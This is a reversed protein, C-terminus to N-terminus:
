GAQQKRIQQLIEIRTHIGSDAYAELMHAALSRITRAHFLAAVTVEIELLKRLQSTIVLATLSNGGLEAFADEVGVRDIRLARSWLDCLLEEAEGVPAVYNHAPRRARVPPPLAGYDIKGSSSRPLEDVFMYISPILEPPLFQELHTRLSIEDPSERADGLVYACLYEDSADRRHVVAARLVKPHRELLGEVENLELRRGHMKIQRDRRGHFQLEGAENMSVFDGTCYMRAGADASFPDPIFAAASSAPDADYCAAVGCGGIFLQGVSGPAVARLSEDLVYCAVGAVPTGIGHEHESLQKATSWITTETPGYVNWSVPVSDVLWSALPKPLKEGGVLAKIQRSGQWGNRQLMGWITPTAQMVTVNAAALHLALLQPDRVVSDPVIELKAGSILPLCLELLSIDFSTASTSAVIDHASVGLLERFSSLVNSYSSREVVVCKPVGSSGSTHMRYAVQHPLLLPEIAVSEIADRAGALDMVNLEGPGTQILYTCRQQAMRAREGPDKSGILIFSAGAKLVALLAIVLEIGRECVIGVVDRASVKDQLLRHTLNDIRRSLESYTMAHDGAVVAVRDAGRRVQLQFQELLDEQMRPRSARAVSGTTAPHVASVSSEEPAAALRTLVSQYVAVIEAIRAGFRRQNVSIAATLEGSFPDVNFSVALPFSSVEYSRKDLLTLEAPAHIGNHFSTFYFLVSSLTQVGLLQHIEVL